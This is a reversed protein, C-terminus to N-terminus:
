WAFCSSKGTATIREITSSVMYDCDIDGSTASGLDQLAREEQRHQQQPESRSDSLRRATTDATCGALNELLVTVTAEALCTALSAEDLTTPDYRISYEFAADAVTETNKLIQKCFFQLDTTPDETSGVELAPDLVGFCSDNDGTCASSYFIMVYVAPLDEFLGVNIDGNTLLQLFEVYLERNVAGGNGAVEDMLSYCKLYASASNDTDTIVEQAGRHQAAASGKLSPGNNFLGHARLKKHILDLPALLVPTTRSSESHQQQQERASARTPYKGGEAHRLIVLWISSTSRFVVSSGM